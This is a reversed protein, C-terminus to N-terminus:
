KTIADSNEFRGTKETLLIRFVIGKVEDFDDSVFPWVNGLKMTESVEGLFPRSSLAQIGEMREAKDTLEKFTGWAIVSQWNGMNELADVQFCVEPNQRMYEVKMGDFSHVYICDDKYAYSVPVVYTKGHVHCGIRGVLNTTLVKEIQADNLTGFM